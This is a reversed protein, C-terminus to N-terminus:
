EFEKEFTTGVDIMVCFFFILSASLSNALVIANMTVFWM